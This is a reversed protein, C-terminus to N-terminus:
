TSISPRKAGGARRAVRQSRKQNVGPPDEEQGAGVFARTAALAESRPFHNRAARRVDEEHLVYDRTRAGTTDRKVAWCVYAPPCNYVHVTWTGAPAGPSPLDAEEKGQDLWAAVERARDVVEEEDRLLRCDRPRAVFKQRKNAFLHDYCAVFAFVELYALEDDGGIAGRLAAPAM